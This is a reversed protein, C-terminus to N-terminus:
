RPFHHVWAVLPGQMFHEVSNDCLNMEVQGEAVVVESKKDEM